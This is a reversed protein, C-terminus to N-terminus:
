RGRPHRLLRARPQRKQILAIEFSFSMAMELLAIISMAM